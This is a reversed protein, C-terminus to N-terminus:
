VNRSIHTESDRSNIRCKSIQDRVNKPFSSWFIVCAYWWLWSWAGAAKGQSLTGPEWQIPPQTPGLTRRSATSFLFFGYVAESGPWKVRPFLGQNENSLLSLPGWPGDLCRLSCSFIKSYRSDFELSDLRFVITTDVIIEVGLPNRRRIKINLNEFIPSLHFYRNPNISETPDLIRTQWTYMGDIGDM